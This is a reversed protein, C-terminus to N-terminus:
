HRVSLVPFEFTKGPIENAIHAAASERSHCDVESAVWIPDNEIWRSLAHGVPARVRANNPRRNAPHARLLRSQATADREATFVAGVPEAVVYKASERFIDGSRQIGKCVTIKAARSDESCRLNM